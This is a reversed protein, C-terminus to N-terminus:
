DASTSAARSEAARKGWKQLARTAVVALAVAFVLVITFPTWPFHSTTLEAVFQQSSLVPDGTKAQDEGAELTVRDFEPSYTGAFGPSLALVTAGPNAEGVETAIDRLPTHIPPNADIVVIKLDIGEGAAEQVVRELQSQVEPSTGVPVSVGTEAVNARVIDMCADPVPEGPKVDIGVSQCLQVPIYTPVFPVFQLGSM